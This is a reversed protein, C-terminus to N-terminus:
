KKDQKVLYIIIIGFLFQVILSIILLSYLNSVDAQLNSIQTPMDGLQDLKDVANSIERM